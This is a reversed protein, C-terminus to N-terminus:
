KGEERRRREARESSALDRQHYDCERISMRCLQLRWVRREPANEQKGKM